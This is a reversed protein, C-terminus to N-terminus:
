ENLLKNIDKELDAVESQSTGDYYGRIRMQGDLLVLKNSHIFDGPGGDGDAAVLKFEKRALQYISRKDGTLFEWGTTEIGMRQIYKALKEVTDHAPDVTFSAISIQDGFEGQVGKLSNTMKPCISPCSTFFFDVITVKNKWAAPTVIRGAQDQFIYDDASRESFAISLVPPAQYHEWWTEIIFAMLPVMIAISIYTWVPTIKIIKRM